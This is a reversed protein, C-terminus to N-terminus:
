NKLFLHLTNYNTLLAMIQVTLLSIFLSTLFQCFFLDPTMCPGLLNDTTMEPEPQDNVMFVISDIQEFQNISDHRLKGQLDDFVIFKGSPDLSTAIFHDPRSLIVSKLTLTQQTSKLLLTGFSQFLLRIDFERFVSGVVQVVLLPKNVALTFNRVVAELCNQNGADNAVGDVFFFTEKESLEHGCFETFFIENLYSDLGISFHSM